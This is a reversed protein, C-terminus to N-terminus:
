LDEKPQRKCRPKAPGRKLDEIEGEFTDKSEENLMSAKVRFAERVSSATKACGLLEEENLQYNALTLQESQGKYADPDFM